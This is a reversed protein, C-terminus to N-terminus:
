LASQGSRIVHRISQGPQDVLCQRAAYQEIAKAVDLLVPINRLGMALGGPATTEQGLLMGHKPPITEDLIRGESLGVRMTTVIFDADTVAEKVSTTTSVKTDMNAASLMTKVFNSVIANREPDVDMMVWESVPFEDRRQILIEAFDPTYSSGGGIQALKIGKKM